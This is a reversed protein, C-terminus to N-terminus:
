SSPRVLSAGRLRGWAGLVVVSLARAVSWDMAGAARAKVRARQKAEAVVGLRVVVTEPTRMVGSATTM